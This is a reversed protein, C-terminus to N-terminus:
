KKAGDVPLQYVEGSDQLNKLDLKGLHTLSFFQGTRRATEEGILIQGERAYDALRAALITISGSATFTWRDGEAGRMKTSGLYVEGSSIGINVKIPFMESDGSQSMEMCHGHIGLAAQVANRAHVTSDPNVFIVMMGDGATENLDGENKQMLNLFCSFYSEIARNMREQPYKQVLTTFGEIDLFLVTADQIYKDLLAKKEPDKEIINKATVPVFNALVRKIKNLREISLHALEYRQVIGFFIIILVGFLLLATAVIVTQIVAHRHHAKFDSIDLAVLFWGLEHPLRRPGMMHASRGMTGEKHVIEEAKYSVLLLRETESVLGGDRFRLADYESSSPLERIPDSQAIIKGERDLIALYQIFKSKLALDILDEYKEAGMRAMMGHGFRLSSVLFTKNEELMLRTFKKDAQITKFSNITLTIALVVGSLIM